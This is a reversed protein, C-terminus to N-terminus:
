VGDVFPNISIYSGGGNRSRNLFDIFIPNVVENLRNHFHQPMFWRGTFEEFYVTRGEYKYCKPSCLSIEAGDKNVFANCYDTPVSEKLKPVEINFSM